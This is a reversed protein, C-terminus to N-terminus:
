SAYYPIKRITGGIQVTLFGVPNAPLAAAGATATASSLSAQFLVTGGSQLDVNGGTDVAVMSVTDAPNRVILAGGTNPMIIRQHTGDFYIGGGNSAWKVGKTAGSGLLVAATTFTGVTCNILTDAQAGGQMALGAGTSAMGGLIIGNELTGGGVGGTQLFAGNLVKNFVNIYLGASGAAPNTDSSTPEVDIELGVFRCNDKGTGIALINAGFVTTNNAAASSLLTAAVVDGASGNNVARVFLTQSPSGAQGDASTFTGNLGIRTVVNGSWISAQDELPFAASDILRDIQMKSGAIPAARGALFIGDAVTGSGSRGVLAAGGTAALSAISVKLDFAAQQATSVPKNTDSTNDVNSLGIDSKTYALLSKAEAVSMDTAVGSADTGILNNADGTLQHGANWVNVSVQKNPNNSGTALTKPTISITM